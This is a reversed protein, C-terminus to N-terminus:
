DRSGLAGDGCLLAWLLETMEGDVYSDRLREMRKRAGTLNKQYDPTIVVGHDAAPNPRSTIRSIDYREEDDFRVKWTFM